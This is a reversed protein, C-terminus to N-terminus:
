LGRLSGEAERVAFLGIRTVSTGHMGREIGFYFVIVMYSFLISFIFIIPLFSVFPPPISPSFPLSVLLM